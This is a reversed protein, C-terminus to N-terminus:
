IATKGVGAEGILVPNNKTRRSLVQMVRRIEADRGIIPDLKGNRAEQTLDNGYKELAQYRAEPEASDVRQTGRIEKLANMATEENLEYGALLRAIPKNGLLGLFLHETSIFEDSFAKSKKEALTLVHAMQQSMYIQALGGPPMAPSGSSPLSELIADVEGRLRARHPTIKDVLAGVVGDEQQLLAMLLHIPELAQQGHEVAIAHAVQLAEQSKHTFNNPMM